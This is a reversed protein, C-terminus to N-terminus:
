DKDTDYASALIFMFIGYCITGAATILFPIHGINDGIFDFAKDTDVILDSNETVGSKLYFYGTIGLIL